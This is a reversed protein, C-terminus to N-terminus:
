TDLNDFGWGAKAKHKVHDHKSTPPTQSKNHYSHLTLYFPVVQGKADLNKLHASWFAYKVRCGCSFVHQM